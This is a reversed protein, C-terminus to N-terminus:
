GCPRIPTLSPLVTTRTTSFSSSSLCIMATDRWTPTSGRSPMRTRRVLLPAPLHASLPPSLAFNPRLVASSRIAVSRNRASFISCQKLSRCKWMPECTGSMRVMLFATCSAGPKVGFKEFHAEGDFGQIHAAPQAHIVVPAPRGRVARGVVGQAFVGVVHDKVDRLNAVLLLHGMRLDDAFAPPRNDRMVAHQHDLNDARDFFHAGVGCHGVPFVLVRQHAIQQVNALVDSLQVFQLSVVVRQVPPLFRLVHERKAQQIQGVLRFDFREVPFDAALHHL